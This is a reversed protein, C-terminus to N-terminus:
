RYTSEDVEVIAGTGDPVAIIVLRGLTPHRATSVTFAPLRKESIVDCEDKMDAILAAEAEQVRM